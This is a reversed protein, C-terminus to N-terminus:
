YHVPLRYGCRGFVARYASDLADLPPRDNPVASGIESIHRDIVTRMANDCSHGIGTV